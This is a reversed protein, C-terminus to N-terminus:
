PKVTKNNFHSEFHRALKEPICCLKRKSSPLTEPNKANEFLEKLERNIANLNLKDAESQYFQNMLFVKPRKIKTRLQKM